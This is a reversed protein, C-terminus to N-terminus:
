QGSLRRVVTAIRGSKVGMRRASFLRSDCRSCLVSVVVGAREVGARSLAVMAAERLDVHPKAGVSRRVVGDGFRRSFREAFQEDVEYCDGCICPGIAVRMTSCDAGLREMEVVTAEVIGDYLGRWGGHAIGIVGHRSDNFVIPLCDATNVVLAVDDRVTVLADVGNLCPIVDGIVAVNVSHTQRPIILADVDTGVYAALKRRCEAVHAPEDGTYHCVSFGSYPSNDGNREGRLTSFALAGKGVDLRVIDM